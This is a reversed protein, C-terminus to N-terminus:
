TLKFNSIEEPASNIVAKPSISLKAMNETLDQSTSNIIEKNSNLGLKAMSETLDQTSPNIIEQTSNLSLKPMDEALDHSKRKVEALVTVTEAAKEKIISFIERIAEKPCPSSTSALKVLLPSHPPFLQQNGKGDKHKILAGTLKKEHGMKIGLDVFDQTSSVLILQPPLKEENSHPKTHFKAALIKQIEGDHLCELPLKDKVGLNLDALFYVAEYHIQSDEHLKEKIWDIGQTIKEKINTHDDGTTELPEPRTIKKHRDQQLKGEDKSLNYHNILDNFLQRHNVLLQPNAHFCSILLSKNEEKGIILFDFYLKM